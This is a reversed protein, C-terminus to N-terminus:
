PIKQILWLGPKSRPSLGLHVLASRGEWLRAIPVGERQVRQAIEQPRSLVRLSGLAPLQDEVSNRVPEPHKMSPFSAAEAARAPPLQDPPRLDLRGFDIRSAAAHLSKSAILASARGLLSGGNAATQAPPGAVAAGALAICCAAYGALRSLSEGSRRM